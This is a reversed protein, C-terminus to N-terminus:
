NLDIPLKIQIWIKVNEWLENAKEAKRSLHGIREVSTKCLGCVNNEDLKVKKLYDKLPWPPLTTVTEGGM